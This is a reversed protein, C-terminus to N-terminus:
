GSCHRARAPEAKACSHLGSLDSALATAGRIDMENIEGKKLISLLGIVRDNAGCIKLALAQEGDLLKIFGFCSQPAGEEGAGFVAYESEAIRVICEAYRSARLEFAIHAVPAESQPASEYTNSMKICRAGAASKTGYRFEWLVLHEAGAARRCSDLRAQIERGTALSQGSDFPGSKEPAIKLLLFNALRAACQCAIISAGAALALAIGHRKVFVGLGKM